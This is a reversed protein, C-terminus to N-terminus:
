PSPAMVEAEKNVTTKTTYAKQLIFQLARKNRIPESIRNRFSMKIFLKILSRETFIWRLITKLTNFFTFFSDMVEKRAQLIEEHTYNKYRINPIDKRTRDWDEILRGEKKLRNNLPTGPWSTMLFVRVFDVKMSKLDRILQKHYNKDQNDLGLICSAIVALKHSHIEEVIQKYDINANHNKRIEQLDGPNTSEFGIFVARCGSEYMLDMLEPDEALNLSTQCGWYFGFDKKIMKKLLDKRDKHDQHSYGIFNEDTVVVLQEGRLDEMDQLVTEHPITRYRRNKYVTLYCFSCSYPCGRSTNISPYHYNPHVMKRDPVGLKDLNVDMRGFYTKSIRKNEFDNLFNKWPQEGEGIIVADFHELAEEPMASAHAGGVVCVISRKRLIDAVQYARNIGSTLPSMAVIDANLSHPAIDEGVYEDYMEKRYYDPTHASLYALSLPSYLFETGKNEKELAPYYFIIKYLPDM